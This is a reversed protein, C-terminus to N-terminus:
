PELAPSSDAELAGEPVSESGADDASGGQKRLNEVGYFMNRIEAESVQIETSDSSQGHIPIEVDSSLRHENRSLTYAHLSKVEANQGPDMAVILKPITDDSNSGISIHLPNGPLQIIGPNKLNNDPM